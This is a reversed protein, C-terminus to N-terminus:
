RLKWCLQSSIQVNVISYCIREKNDTEKDTNNGLLHSQCRPQRCSKQRTSMATDVITFYGTCIWVFSAGPKSGLLPLYIQTLPRPWMGGNMDGTTEVSLLRLM